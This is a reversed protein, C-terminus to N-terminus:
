MMILAAATRSCVRDPKCMPLVMFEAHVINMFCM